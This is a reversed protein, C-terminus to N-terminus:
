STNAMQRYLRSADEFRAFGTVFGKLIAYKLGLPDQTMKLTNEIIVGLESLVEIGTTDKGLSAPRLSDRKGSAAFDDLEPNEKYEAFRLSANKIIEYLKMRNNEFFESTMGIDSGFVEHKLWENMVQAPVSYGYLIAAPIALSVDAVLEPERISPSAEPDKLMNTANKSLSSRQGELDKLFFEAKNNTDMSLAFAAFGISGASSNKKLQSQEQVFKRFRDATESDFQQSAIVRGFDEAMSLRLKYSPDEELQPSDRKEKLVSQHEEGLRKALVDITDPGFLSSHNGLYIGSMNDIFEKPIIQEGQPKQGETNGPEM